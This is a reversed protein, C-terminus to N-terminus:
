TAPWPKFHKALAVGQGQYNSKVAEGYRRETQGTALQKYDLWGVIQGHELTFSVGYSRVELVAKSGCARGGSGTGHWGFGPDFFGAYHVRFEGSAPDFPVMEAALHPPVGVQERTALIYFDNKDLNLQGNYPEIPEWFERPDYYGVKDLDIKSANKKARFGIVEGSKERRLNVTLPVLNDRLPPLKEDGLKVLQGDEYLRRLESPGIAPSGRQLRLQNLRVGQRVIISFTLPIVELFLSGAKYGKEVRDFATSQDTILRTLVDLRGTSSKPNAFGIYEGPLRVSELLEVVYVAGKEFVVGSETTLDIAPLGDLQRVKDMVTSKPGPLFSAKVRYARPGLRLDLSAPQIQDPEIKTLSDIVKDVILARITQYPVLGTPRIKLINKSSDGDEVPFLGLKGIESM